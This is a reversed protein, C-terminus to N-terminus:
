DEGATELVRAVERGIEAEIDRLPLSWAAAFMRLTDYEPKASVIEGKYKAVKVEIEGFRTAVTRFGRELCERGVATVRAGLTPTERYLVSFMRERDSPRCLVSLQTGPRNKKMQIATFWCDLAGADFLREMAYGLIQPTTDDLNTEILILEEGAPESSSEGLILRLANPFGEYDRSGAGYATRRICIEPMPGFSTCVTAIVAAGTPTTLEGEIEGSYVPIGALLEAVAPPPVPFNGHAMRVFGSGVHVRSCAFREIGLMEFGICAGVIDVIADMAGVEHFHVKGVDIGHVKAEAEALRTFIAKARGAVSESFGAADIIRVIDSLHRHAHEHPVRVDAFVSAIGSKDRISTVIDFDPLGLKALESVLAERDVGLGFLAGLIM